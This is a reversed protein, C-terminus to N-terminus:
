RPGVVAADPLPAGRSLAVLLDAQTPGADALKLEELRVRGATVLAKQVDHDSLVHHVADAIAGPDKHELMVGAAGLVEPVAGQRFAVVPLDHAMAEVVPVCYGEHESTVVLVDAQRYAASLAGDSVRGSFRVAGAVGLEAAYARLARGYVDLAVKGIVELTAHPDHRGRYITLAAILDEVAKNPALRGVSLWRAGGGRPPPADVRAERTRADGTVESRAIVPAIVATRSFGAAQLDRRNVESVAVGMAARPALGVLEQRARVQHRALANDWPAFLEPPTINHYNVVLTERRAALWPALDSATAFQYVLVDGPQAAEPYARAPRTLGATDPDDWEVYIESDIGRAQLLARIALTHQGVADRRHLM